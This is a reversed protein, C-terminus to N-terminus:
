ARKLRALRLATANEVSPDREFTKQLAQIRETAGGKVPAPGPKLVPPVPKAAVAKPAKLIDRYKLGDAILKQIGANSLIEHGTDDAMWRSLQENKLGLDDTLMNVARERLNSAKKPDAMEPVLEVLLKNQEAEYSARKGQKEQAKTAQLNRAELALHGVKDQYDKWELYRFPDSKLLNTVDEDNRIDSFPGSNVLRQIDDLSPIKEELQQRVRVAAEREAEVAKRTEAIENQSRRFESEYRTAARAIKEQADRPYSKFEEKEDKTWSRPPEIPPEEAPEAEETLEAPDTEPDSDAQAPETEATAPEASEATSEPKKPQTYFRVAEDISLEAPIEAPAAVVSDNGSAPAGTEESL